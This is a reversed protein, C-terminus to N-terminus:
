YNINKKGRSNIQVNPKILKEERDYNFKENLNKNTIIDFNRSCISKNNNERLKTRSVSNIKNIKNELTKIKLKSDYADKLEKNTLVYYAEKILHITKKDKNSYFPLHKFKNLKEIYNKDINEINLNKLGLIGYYDNIISM